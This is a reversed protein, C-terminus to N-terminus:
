TPFALSRLRDMVPILTTVDATDGPWLEYCIPRGQGDLVVGVVRQYLDPRHDKCHGRQGIEQGGNGEFYVSTTDLFVLRFGTVLDRRQDLLGEEIRDKTCRPAFPAKGAQQEGPLEEGLWAMAGYLHHLQLADCGDIQYDAQLRM